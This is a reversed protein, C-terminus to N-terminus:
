EASSTESQLEKMLNTLEDLSTHHEPSDNVFALDNLDSIQEEFVRLENNYNEMSEELEADIIKSISDLTIMVKEISEENKTVLLSDGHRVSVTDNDITKQIVKKNKADLKRLHNYVDKVTSDSVGKPFLKKFKELSLLNPFNTREFLFESLLDKETVM